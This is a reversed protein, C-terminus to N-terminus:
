LASLASLNHAQLQHNRLTALTRAAFTRLGEDLSLEGSANEFLAVAADHDQKMLSIYAEDFDRGSLSALENVAAVHGDDLQTPVPAGIAAAARNLQKNAAAHDKIMTAAFDRIAPTASKKVAMQAVKVETLGSLAAKEIFAADNLKDKVKHDDTGPLPQTSLENSNQPSPLQGKVAPSTGQAMTSTGQAATSTSQALTGQVVVSAGQALGNFAACSLSVVGVTVRLSIAIKNRYIIEIMVTTVESSRFIALCGM